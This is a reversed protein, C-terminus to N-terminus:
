RRGWKAGESGEAWMFGRVEEKRVMAPLYLAMAGMARMAQAAAPRGRGVEVRRVPVGRRLPVRATSAAIQAM